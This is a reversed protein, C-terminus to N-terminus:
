RFADRVAFVRFKDLKLFGNYINNTSAVILSNSKVLRARGSPTQPAKSREAIDIEFLRKGKGFFHSKEAVQRKDILVHILFFARFVSELASSQHSIGGVLLNRVYLRKRQKFLSELHDLAFSRNKNRIAAESIEWFGEFLQSNALKSFISELMSAQLRVNVIKADQDLERRQQPSYFTGGAFGKIKILFTSCMRKRLNKTFAHLAQM